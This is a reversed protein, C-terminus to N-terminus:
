GFRLRSTSHLFPYTWRPDPSSGVARDARDAYTWAKDTM